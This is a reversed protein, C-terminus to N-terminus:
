ESSHNYQYALRVNRQFLEYSLPVGTLLPLVKEHYTEEDMSLLNDYRFLDLLEQQNTFTSGMPTKLPHSLHKENWPCAEQCIDCEFFYYPVSQIFDPMDDEELLNSICRSRDLKQPTLAASPCQDMCATCSGCLNQEMENEESLDADTIIAGLAQFSGYKRNLLLTNKGIWGLGARVGAAKLPICNDETLGDYILAEYGNAVLHDRLPKLPDVVNFYFGSLTLRSMKSHLKPDEGPLVFGGVYVSTVILSKSKPMLVRPQRAQFVDVPDLDSADVFRIEDIRYEKAIERLEQRLKDMDHDM